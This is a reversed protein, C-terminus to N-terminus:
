RKLSLLDLSVHAAIGTLCIFTYFIFTGMVIFKFFSGFSYKDEYFIAYLIVLLIFGQLSFASMFILFEQLTFAPM